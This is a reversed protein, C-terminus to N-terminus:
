LVLREKKYAIKMSFGGIEKFFPVKRVLEFQKVISREM